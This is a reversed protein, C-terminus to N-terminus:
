KTRTLMKRVWQAIILRINSLYIPHEQIQKQQWVVKKTIEVSLTSCLLTACMYDKLM